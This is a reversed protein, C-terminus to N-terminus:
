KEKDWRQIRDEMRIIQINSVNNPHSVKNSDILLGNVFCHKKPNNALIAAWRKKDKTRDANHLFGAMENTAKEPPTFYIKESSNQFSNVTDNDFRSMLEQTVFIGGINHKRGENLIKYTPSDKGGSLNQVEDLVIPLPLNGENLLSKYNYLDWLIFDSLVEKMEDTYGELEFLYCIGDRKNFSDWNIPNKYNFPDKDFFLQLKSIVTRASNNSKDKSLLDNLVSLSMDDGYINIGEKVSSYIASFQQQGLNYIKCIINAFRAAVDEPGDEIVEGGIIKSNKKFPNINLGNKYINFQKFKNNSNLTNKFIPELKGDVFSDSYDIIISNINNHAFELLMCQLAYSKGQGSTGTVIAHNNALNSNGYEWFVEEGTLKDIGLFIRVEKIPKIPTNDENSINEDEDFSDGDDSSEEDENYINFDKNVAAIEPEYIPQFYGDVITLDDELDKPDYEKTPQIESFNQKYYDTYKDSICADRITDWRGSVINDRIKEISDLVDNRMYDIPFNLVAINDNHLRFSCISNQNSFITVCGKGIFENLSKTVIFEDNLLKGRITNLQDLDFDITKSLALKRANILTLNMFFQKYFKKLIPSKENTYEILAKELLNSTNIAQKIGKSELSNYAGAESAKVEVPYIHIKIQENIDSTEIGIMLIDDSYYKNKMEKEMERKLDAFISEDGIRQDGAIRLIEELSIPIWLIDKHQLFAMMIKYTAIESFSARTKFENDNLMLNLLWNGNICTTLTIFDNVQKETISDFTKTGKLEEKIIKRFIDVKKTVTIADYNESNQLQDSYHIIMLDKANYFYDVGFHPNIFTVWESHDYISETFNSESNSPIMVLCQDKTYSANLSQAYAYENLYQASKITESREIIEQTLGGLGFGFRAENDKPQRSSISSILGGLSIGTPINQMTETSKKDNNDRNIFTIHANKLNKKDMKYHFYQLSHQYLRLVEREDYGRHTFMELPIHQTINTLDSEGLFYDFISTDNTDSYFNVVVPIAEIDSKHNWQNKIYSLIGKLFELNNGLKIANIVLPLKKNIDFLQSYHIRFETLKSKVIRDLYRNSEDEVNKDIKTYKIWTGSQSESISNYTGETSEKDTNNFFNKNVSFLPLLGLGNFIAFISSPIKEITSRNNNNFLESYFNYQQIITVINLSTFRITNSGDILSGLLILDEETKQNLIYGDIERVREFFDIYNQIHIKYLRLIEENIQALLPCHNDNNFYDLIDLYSKKINEPVSIDFKQIKNDKEYDLISGFLIDNSVMEEELVIKLLEDNAYLNYTIGNLYINKNNREVSTNSELKALIIDNLKIQKVTSTSYTFKFPIQVENLIISLTTNADINGLDQRDEILSSTLEIGQEYPITYTEEAIDEASLNNVLNEQNGITLSNDFYSFKISPDSNKPDILFDKGFKFLDSSLPIFCTNLTFNVTRKDGIKIFIKKFCTTEKSIKTSIILDCNNKTDNVIETEIDTINIFKKAPLEANFPIRIKCEDLNNPNFIILNRIRASANSTGKPSDICEFGNQKEVIIESDIVLKTGKQHMKNWSEDVDAFDVTKWSDENKLKSIVNTKGEFNKEVYDKAENNNHAIALHGFLGSNKECRKAISSDSLDDPFNDEFLGMENFDDTTLHNETIFSLDQELDFISNQFTNSLKKEIDFKIIKKESNNLNSSDIDKEMGSTLKQFELPMGKDLLSQAGNTISDLDYNCFLFLVNLGCYIGQQEKVLNRITVLFAETVGLTSSAAAILTKNGNSNIIQHSKYKGDIFPASNNLSLLENYFADVETEKDFQLYYSNGTQLSEIEEFYNNIKKSLYEYFLKKSKKLM